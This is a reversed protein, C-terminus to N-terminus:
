VVCVCVWVCGCRCVGVCLVCLVCVEADIMPSAGACGSFQDCHMETTCTICGM